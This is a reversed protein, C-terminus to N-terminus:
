TNPLKVGRHHLYTIVDHVLKGKPQGYGRVPIVLEGPTLLAKVSDSNKQQRTMDPRVPVQGGRKFSGIPANYLRTSNFYYPM